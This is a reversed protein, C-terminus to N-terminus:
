NDHVRHISQVIEKLFSPRELQDLLPDIGDQIGWRVYVRIILPGCQVIEQHPSTYVVSQEPSGEWIMVDGKSTHRIVRLELAGDQIGAAAGQQKCGLGM